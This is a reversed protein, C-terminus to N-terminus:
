TSGLQSVEYPLHLQEEREAAEWLAEALDRTEEPTIIDMM